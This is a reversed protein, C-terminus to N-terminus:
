KSLRQMELIKNVVRQSANGDDFEHFMLLANQYKTKYEESIGESLIQELAQMLEKTNSTIEGPFIHKYNYILGRDHIYEDWDYCFGVIPRKRQLFDVWISSYDTILIDANRLIVQTETYKNQSLDLFENENLVFQISRNIHTRIGLVASHKSLMRKLKEIDEDSFEYMGSHNKRFTPAYLILRRGNLEKKLENEIYKLDTPLQDHDKILLDNRPLGTIVIKSYPLNFSSSMALRDIKSSVIVVNYNDVEKSLHRLEKKSYAEPATFGVGKLQIGHWVNFIIRKKNALKVYYDGTGHHIIIVSSRLINFIGDITKLSITYKKDESCIGYDKESLLIVPKVNPEKKVIEFIERHNGSWQKNPGVPFVWLRKDKPVLIDLIYIFFFLMRRFLLQIITLAKKTSAPM